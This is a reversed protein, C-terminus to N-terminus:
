GVVLSLDQELQALLVGQPDMGHSNIWDMSLLAHSEDVYRPDSWFSWSMVTRAGWTDFILGFSNYGQVFVAHGGVIGGDNALPTIPQGANFQDMFSQPVSFGIYVGGFLWVAQKIHLITGPDPDAYALIKRGAIGTQRFYNLVTLEDGGNDTSPDGNVYGCADEYGTLIASDPVTVMRGNNLTWTQIAHGCAAITCDGLDGNLMIKWDIHFGKSYDVYVPPPQLAPTLYKALKLTRPDYRAPKKGFKLPM